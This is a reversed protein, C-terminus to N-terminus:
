VMYVTAGVLAVMVWYGAVNVLMKAAASDTIADETGGPISTGNPLTGNLIITSKGDIDAVDVV